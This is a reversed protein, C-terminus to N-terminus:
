RLPRRGGGDAGPAGGDHDGHADRLVTMPLGGPLAGNM